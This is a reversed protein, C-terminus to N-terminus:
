PPLQSRMSQLAPSNGYSVQGCDTLVYARKIERNLHRWHFYVSVSSRAELRRPWSGGDIIIPQTIAMRGKKRPDGDTTFGVDGVTVPFASLNTVEICGMKQGPEGTPTVPHAIKPIVKLKVRQQILGNWTNIVGLVAGTVACSITFLDKFDIHQM